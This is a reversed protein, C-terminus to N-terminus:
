RSWPGSFYVGGVSGVSISPHAHGDQPTMLILLCFMNVGEVDCVWCKLPLDERFENCMLLLTIYAYFFFRRKLELRIIVVWFPGVEM